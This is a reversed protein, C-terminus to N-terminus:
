TTSRIIGSYTDFWPPGAAGGNNLFVTKQNSVNKKETPTYYYM